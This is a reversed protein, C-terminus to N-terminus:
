EQPMLEDSSYLGEPILVAKLRTKFTKRCQEDSKSLASVWSRETRGLKTNAGVKWDYFHIGSVGQLIANLSLILSTELICICPLTTVM